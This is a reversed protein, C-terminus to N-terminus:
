LAVVRVLAVWSFNKCLSWYCDCTSVISHDIEIEAGSFFMDCTFINAGLLNNSLANYFDKDCIIVQFSTCRETVIM